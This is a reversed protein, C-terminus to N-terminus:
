ITMENVLKLLSEKMNKKLDVDSTNWIDRISTITDNVHEMAHRDMKTKDDKSKTDTYHRRSEDYMKYAQGYRENDTYGMRMNEDFKPDDMFARIYPKQDMYPRDYGMNMSGRGKPAYRGSSYRNPNYGYRPSEGDNMAEIVTEYYEAELCLKKAEALDKIIDAVEGAEAADLTELGKDAASCLERMFKDKLESLEELKSWDNEKMM